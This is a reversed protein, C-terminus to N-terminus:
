RKWVRTFLLSVFLGSFLLITLAFPAAEAFMAEASYSWVNLALTDFGAPSLLITIPLEKMASLFVFIFGAMIGHYLLPLTSYIFAKFRGYGLSRAAEELRPSIHYMASRIPSLSEALFHIAYCFILLVLSQYVAVVPDLALSFFVWALALALPPTAYGLYAIRQLLGTLVSKFRMGIYALPVAFLIALLAAPLSAIFSSFLASWLQQGIVPNVGGTMWFAISTIPLAVSIVFLTIVFLMAPLKLRGLKSVRQYQNKRLQMQTFFFIKLLRYEALIITATIGLLMIAILAAYVRDYAAAYQLYLAFSLTEFRMLSVAGFDGVVYLAIILMGALMSPRLQPLTVRRIIQLTNLGMSRAAEETSVDIGMLGSRLNLFLYPFTYLSIVILSGWYGSVRPIVVGFWQAMSGTEGGLGLMAYALVYGPIALPLIGVLTIWKVGPINTRCVLWALPFAVIFTVVLVGATLALTNWLLVLNRPRWILDAIQAWEGEFARVFLYFVPVMVALAVFISPLLFYWPPLRLTRM